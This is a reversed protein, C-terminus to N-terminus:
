GMVCTENHITNVTTATTVASMSGLSKRITQLAVLVLPVISSLEDFLTFAFDGRQLTVQIYFLHFTEM